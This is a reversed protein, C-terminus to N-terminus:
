PALVQQAIWQAIIDVRATTEPSTHPCDPGNNEVSVVLGARDGIPVFYPAGSDYLCASTDPAPWVGHVEVTTADLSSVAVVGLNLHTGPTPNVSSTAGWGALELTQGVQAAQPDVLAPAIDTVPEALKALAIDNVPSQRVDVIALVHGTTQALDTRGITATTSYQPPGSVPVRNVDHFCHGATIVWQPAILAGSCASNYHSGDPRPINTMTFKVNFPFVGPPASQGDAVAGATGTSLLALVVAAIGAGLLRRMIHRRM